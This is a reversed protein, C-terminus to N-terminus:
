LMAEYCRLFETTMSKEWEIFKMRLDERKENSIDFTAIVQFSIKKLVWDYKTSKEFACKKAADDKLGFVEDTEANEISKVARELDANIQDCKTVKISSPDINFEVPDIIKKEILYVKQCQTLHLDSMKQQQTFKTDDFVTELDDAVNCRYLFMQLFKRITVKVSEKFETVDSKTSQHVQLGKLYLDTIKFDKFSGLICSQNYGPEFTNKVEDYFEATYNKIQKECAEAVKEPNNLYNLICDGEAKESNVGALIVCILIFVKMKVSQLIVLKQRSAQFKKKHSLKIM